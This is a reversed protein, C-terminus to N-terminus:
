RNLSYLAQASLKISCHDATQRVLLLAAPPIQYCRSLGLHEVYTLHHFYQFCEPKLMVSDSLDLHVLSTCRETLIKIDSMLLNQRYGSLNLQIVKPPIHSVAARVHDVTFDCWALNLEELRSCSNLMAELPEASFGSLNLRVLSPNQAINKMTDNSLELGELSLNQLDQCRDLISQLDAVKITCNSLDMHQVPLPRSALPNIENSVVWYKYHLRGSRQRQIRM